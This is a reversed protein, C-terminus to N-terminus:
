RLDLRMEVGHRKFGIKEYFPMNHEECDLIVKYCGRTKAEEIARMVLAKGVGRREYEKRTVVDEIHGVKGGERIFKQEVLLTIAGAIVGNIEAVFINYVPNYYTGNFIEQAKQPDLNGVSRLNELTEFFGKELDDMELRRIKM